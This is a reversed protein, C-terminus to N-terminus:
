RGCWVTFDVASHPGPTGTAMCRTATGTMFRFQGSWVASSPFSWNPVRSGTGLTDTNFGFVYCGQRGCMGPEQVSPLGAARGPSGVGSSLLCTLKAIVLPAPVHRSSSARAVSVGMGEVMQCETGGCINMGYHLADGGHSFAAVAIVSGCDRVHYGLCHGLRGSRSFSGVLQFGVQVRKVSDLGAM